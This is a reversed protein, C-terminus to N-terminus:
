ILANKSEARKTEGNNKREMARNSYARVVTEINEVMRPYVAEATFCERFIQKANESMRRRMGPDNRMMILSEALADSDSSDLTMGIQKEYIMKHLLGRSPSALIPLGASLYEIAKNNVTGLFDEQPPLLNVGVDAIAM